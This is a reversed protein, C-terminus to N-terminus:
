PTSVTDLLTDVNIDELPPDQDYAVIKDTRNSISDIIQWIIENGEHNDQWDVATERIIEKM